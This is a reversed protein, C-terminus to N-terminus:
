RSSNDVGASIDIIHNGNDDNDGGDEFELRLDDFGIVFPSQIFQVMASSSEEDKGITTLFEKAADVLPMGGWHSYLYPSCDGWRDKFQISVRDGM